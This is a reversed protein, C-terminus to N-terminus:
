QLKRSVRDVSMLGMVARRLFPPRKSNVLAISCVIRCCSYSNASGGFRAERIPVSDGAIREGQKVIAVGAHIADAGSQLLLLKAAGNM